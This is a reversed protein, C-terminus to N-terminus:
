CFPALKINESALWMKNDSGDIRPNEGEINKLEM